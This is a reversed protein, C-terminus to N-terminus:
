LVSDDVSHKRTNDESLVIPEHASTDAGNGTNSGINESCIHQGAHSSCLAWCFDGFGLGRAPQVSLMTQGRRWKCLWSDASERADEGVLHQMLDSIGLLGDTDVDLYHFALRLGM